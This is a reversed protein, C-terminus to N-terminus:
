YNFVLMIQMGYGSLISTQGNLFLSGGNDPYHFLALNIIFSDYTRQFQFYQYLNKNDWDYYEQLSFNDLIGTSYSIMAASIQRSQITNWFSNSFTTQMHEALLYIGNGWSITYDTGITTMRSLKFPTLKSINQQWVSEFWLGVGVDWRGDVAYRNEWYYYLSADVRRTHFTTGIEGGLLQTQFRGGVEPARKETPLYEYGKNEKNGFLCWLWLQSNDLSSYKYRIAYVGETIRLPDRPDIRDFWMLPRLLRAPGFTIKQLGIQTESQATSYRIIARYPKINFEDDSFNKYYFADLMIETNLFDDEDLPVTYNIQPIYRIGYNGNWEKNLKTEGGWSAAQGNFQFAQGPSEPSIVLLSVFCFFVRLFSSTNRFDAFDIKLYKEYKFTM